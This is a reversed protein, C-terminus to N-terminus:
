LPRNKKYWSTWFLLGMAAGLTDAIVDGVDFSRNVIFYHQVLEVGFGYCIAMTFLFLTFRLPEAFYFRWLFLLLAFFGVHVIKDLHPLGFLGNTPLASGPLVFLVSIFVLWILAFVKM